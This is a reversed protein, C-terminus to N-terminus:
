SRKRYAKLTLLESGAAFNMEMKKRSRRPTGHRRGLPFLFSITAMGAFLGSGALGRSDQAIGCSCARTERDEIQKRFVPKNYEYQATVQIIVGQVTHFQRVTGM